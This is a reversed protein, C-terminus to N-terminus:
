AEEAEFPGVIKCAPTELRGGKRGRVPSNIVHGKTPSLFTPMIPDTTKDGLQVFSALPV